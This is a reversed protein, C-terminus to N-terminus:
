FSYSIGSKMFVGYDDDVLPSDSIEDPYMEYNVQAYFIWRRSLIYAMDIGVGPVFAGNPTYAYNDSLSESEDLGFYYEAVNESLYTLDVNPTFRARGVTWTYAYSVQYLEGKSNGSIDTRGEARVVGLQSKWEGAVGAYYSRDRDNLRDRDVNKDALEKRGLDDPDLELNATSLVIDFTFRDRNLLHVGGETAHFFLRKSDFYVLPFVSAETGAGAYSVDALSAMVGLRWQTAGENEASAEQAKAGSALFATSIGTVSLLLFRGKWNAGCSM